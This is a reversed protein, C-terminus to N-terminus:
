HLNRPSEEAVEHGRKHSVGSIEAVRVATALCFRRSFHFAPNKIAVGLVPLHLALFYRSLFIDALAAQSKSESSMKDPSLRLEMNKQAKSLESHLGLLEDYSMDQGMRNVKCVIELRLEFSNFFALQVSSDAFTESETTVSQQAGPRPKDILDDDRLEGPPHTDYDWISMLPSRGAQLSLLLNLELITAWLRRRMEAQFLGGPNNSGPDRHLGAWMAKRVLDGASVWCQHVHDNGSANAKAMVVLCALQLEELPPPRKSVSIASSSIWTQAELLWQSAAARWRLPDSHATAGLALCLQLSLLFVGDAAGGSGARDRPQQWFKEYDARFSPVHLVRLSGEFFHFYNNLLEDAVGREPLRRGIAPPADSVTLQKEIQEGLGQCRAFNHGLQSKEARAQGLVRLIKSYLSTNNLWNSQNGFRLSRKDKAPTAPRSATTSRPAKDDSGPLESVTRELNNIRALLVDVVNSGDDRSQSGAHSANVNPSTALSSSSHATGHSISPSNRIGGYVRPSRETTLPAVVRPALPVVQRRSSIQEKDATTGPVHNQPYTCDAIRSKTCNNCPKNQDCRVKRRRCQRCALAPRRRKKAPVTVESESVQSPQERRGLAPLQQSM